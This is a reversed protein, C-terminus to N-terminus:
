KKHIAIRTRRMDLVNRSILKIRVSRTELPHSM